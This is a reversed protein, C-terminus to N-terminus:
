WTEARHLAGATLVKIRWLLNDADSVVAYPTLGSLLREGKTLMCWVQGDLDADKLAVIGISCGAQCQVRAKLRALQPCEHAALFLLMGCLSRLPITVSAIAPLYNCPALLPPIRPEGFSDSAM